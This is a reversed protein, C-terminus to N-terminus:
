LKLLLPLEARVTARMSFKRMIQAAQKAQEVTYREYPIESVKM